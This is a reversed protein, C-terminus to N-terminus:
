STNSYLGFGRTKLTRTWEQFHAQCEVIGNAASICRQVCSFSYSEIRRRAQSAHM